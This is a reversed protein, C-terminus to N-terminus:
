EEEQSIKAIIKVGLQEWKQKDKEWYELETTSILVHRNDILAVGAPTVYDQEGHFYESSYYTIEADEDLNQLLQKLNKVKM